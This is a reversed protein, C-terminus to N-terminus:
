AIEPDLYLEMADSTKEARTAQRTGAVKEVVLDTRRVGLGKRQLEKVLQVVLRGVYKDITEAAGVKGKTGAAVGAAFLAAAAGDVTGSGGGAFEHLAGYTLGGGLLVADIEPIGFPLCGKRKAVGGELAAIRERLDAIAVERAASM